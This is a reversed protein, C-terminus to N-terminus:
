AHILRFLSQDISMIRKAADSEPDIIEFDSYEFGPAVSCGTLVRDKLPAAAQWYGAPVIHCFNMRQASLEIAEVTPSRGDWQYLILGTGQYLNWVEDSLVRHFRSVEHTDLSFYIHTLASKPQDSNTKIATTSRYIELFRGGEPHVILDEYNM